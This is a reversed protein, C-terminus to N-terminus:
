LCDARWSGFLYGRVRGRTGGEQKSERRKKREEEGLGDQWVFCFYDMWKVSEEKKKRKLVRTTIGLRRVIGLGGIM